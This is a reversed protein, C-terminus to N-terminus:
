PAGKEGAWGWLRRSRRMEPLGTTWASSYPVWKPTTSRETSRALPSTLDASARITGTRSPLTSGSTVLSTALYTPLTAGIESRTRPVADSLIVGAGVGAPSLERPSKTASPCRSRAPVSKASTGVPPSLVLRAGPGTVYPSSKETCGEPRSRTLISNLPSCTRRARSSCYLGSPRWWLSATLPRRKAWSGRLGKPSRTTERVRGSPQGRSGLRVYETATLPKRAAPPPSKPTKVSPLYRRVTPVSMPARARCAPSRGWGKPEGLGSSSGRTVSRRHDPRSSRRQVCRVRYAILGNRCSVPRKEAPRGAHTCPLACSPAHCAPGDVGSGAPIKATHESAVPVKAHAPECTGRPTIPSAPAWSINPLASSSGGLRLNKGCLTADPSGAGLPM